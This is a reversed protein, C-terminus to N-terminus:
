TGDRSRHDVRSDTRGETRCSSPVPRYPGGHSAPPWARSGTRVM